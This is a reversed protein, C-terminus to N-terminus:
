FKADDQTACSAFYDAAAVCIRDKSKTALCESFIERVENCNRMQNGAIMSLVVPSHSWPKTRQNRLIKVPFAVTSSELTAATM